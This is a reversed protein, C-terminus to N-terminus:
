ENTPSTRGWGKRKEAKEREHTPMPNEKGCFVLFKEGRRSTCKVRRLEKKEGQLGSRGKSRWDGNKGGRKTSRNHGRWLM